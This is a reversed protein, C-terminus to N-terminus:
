CPDMIWEMGALVAILIFMITGLIMDRGELHLRRSSRFTGDFGRCLMADYVRNARDYGKILLIGVLYAYTKYTHLDTKPDFGRTKLLAQAREYEKNLVHLYRWSFFFLHVLKPHVRLALLAYALSFPNSTSLLALNVFLIANCRLTIFLAQMIGERSPNFVWINIMAHGPTTFPTICWIALIFLNVTATRSLLQRAPPGALIVMCLSIGLALVAAELNKTCAVVISFGATSLLKIRADARQILSM